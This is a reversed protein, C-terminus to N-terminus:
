IEGGGTITELCERLWSPLSVRRAPPGTDGDDWVTGFSVAGSSWVQGSLGSETKCTVSPGDGHFYLQLGSARGRRSPVRVVNELRGDEDYSLRLLGGSGGRIKLWAKARPRGTLPLVSAAKAPV